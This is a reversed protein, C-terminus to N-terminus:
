WRAMSVVTETARHYIEPFGACGVSNALVSSSGIVLVAVAVLFAGLASTAL